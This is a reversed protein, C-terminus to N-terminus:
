KASEDIPLYFDGASFGETSVLQLYQNYVGGGIKLRLDPRVQRSFSIRPELLSRDGDTIYRYRLGTRLTTKDDAFWRDKVIARM